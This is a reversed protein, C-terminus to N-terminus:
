GRNGMIFADKTLAGEDAIRAIGFDLLKVEGRETLMVNGPKIDRHVIGAEHARELGRAVGVVIRRALNVPLPGAELRNRLTEGPYYATVLYLQGDDTEGLEHVNLINPHDLASAARAERLFREKARPERSWERPLLKLAVPRELRSDHAKWVEGMGGTGLLHEVRYPGIRRGALSELPLTELEPDGELLPTLLAAAEGELLGEERRAAALLAEVEARLTDDAGCLTDLLAEAQAEPADLVRDLVEEVRRWLERDM